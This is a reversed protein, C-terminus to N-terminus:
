DKRLSEKKRIGERFIPTRGPDMRYQKMKM